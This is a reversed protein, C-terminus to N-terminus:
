LSLIFLNGTVENQNAKAIQSSQYEDLIVDLLLNILIVPISLMMCLGLYIIFIILILVITSLSSILQNGSLLFLSEKSLDSPRNASLVKTRIM